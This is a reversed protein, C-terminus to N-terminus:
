RKPPFIAPMDICRMSSSIGPCIWKPNCSFSTDPTSKEYTNVSGSSSINLGHPVDGSKVVLTVPEVKKVTIDTPDYSFRKATIEIRRPQETQAGAFNLPVFGSAAVALARV